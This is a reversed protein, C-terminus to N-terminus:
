QRDELETTIPDQDLCDDPALFYLLGPPGLCHIDRRKFQGNHNDDSPFNRPAANALRSMTRPMPRVQPARLRSTSRPVLSVSHRSRTLGLMRAYPHAWPRSWCAPCCSNRRPGHHTSLTNGRAKDTTSIRWSRKIVAPDEISAIVKMKGGCTECTEIDIKFM